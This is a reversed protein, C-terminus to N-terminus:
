PDPTCPLLCWEGMKPYAARCDIQAGEFRDLVCREYAACDPCERSRRAAGDAECTKMSAPCGTDSCARRNAMCTDRCLLRSAACARVCAGGDTRGACAAKCDECGQACAAGCGTCGTNCDTRCTEFGAWCGFHDPACNQEFDQAECEPATGVGEVGEYPAMVVYACDREYAAVLDDPTLAPVVPAPALTPAAETVASPDFGSCALLVALLALLLPRM